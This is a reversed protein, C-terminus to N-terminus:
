RVPWTQLAANRALMKKREERGLEEFGHRRLREERASSRRAAADIAARARKITSIALQENITEESLLDLLAPQDPTVPRRVFRANLPNAGSAGGEGICRLVAHLRDSNARNPEKGRLWEYITPRSVLLIQAAQSKNLSLAAQLNELQEAVSLGEAAMSPRKLAPSTDPRPRVGRLKVIVASSGISRSSAKLESRGGTGEYFLPPLTGLLHGDRARIPTPGTPTGSARHAIPSGSRHVAPTM